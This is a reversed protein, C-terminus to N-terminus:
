ETRLMIENEADASCSEQKKRSPGSDARGSQAFRLHVGFGVRGPLTRAATSYYAMPAAAFHPQPPTFDPRHYSM